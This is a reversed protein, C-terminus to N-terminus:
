ILPITQCLTLRSSLYGSLKSSHCFLYDLETRLYSFAFLYKGFNGAHWICELGEFTTRTAFSKTCYRHYLEAELVYQEIVNQKKVALHAPFGEVSHRGPYM